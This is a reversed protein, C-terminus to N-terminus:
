ETQNGLNWFTDQIKPRYCARVYGNDDKREEDDKMTMVDIFTFM